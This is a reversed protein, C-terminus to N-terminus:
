KKLVKYLPSSYYELGPSLLIKEEFFKKYKKRENGKPLTQDLIKLWKKNSLMKIHGGFFLGQVILRNKQGIKINGNFITSIEKAFLSVRALQIFRNREKKFENIFKKFQVAEQVTCLILRWNEPYDGIFLWHKPVKRYKGLIDIRNDWTIALNSTVLLNDDFLGSAETGFIKGLLQDLQWIEPEPKIFTPDSDDQSELCFNKGTYKQVDLGFNPNIFPNQNYALEEAQNNKQMFNRDEVSLQENLADNAQLRNGDKIEATEQQMYQIHTTDPSSAQLTFHSELLSSVELLDSIGSLSDNILKQLEKKLNFYESESLIEKISDLIESSLKSLFVIKDLSKKSFAYEKYLDRSMSKTFIHSAKSFLEAEEVGPLQYARDLIHQQLLNEIKQLCYLLNENPQAEIENLYSFLILDEVQLKLKDVEKGLKKGIKQTVDKEVAFILRQNLALERMRRGGQLLEHIKTHESCTLIALAKADQSIDIGTIHEQDYYTFLRNKKYGTELEITSSHTGSIEFPNDLRKKQMCFLKGTKGDFFLVGELDIKFEILSLCIMKAAKKNEIGRFYCGVDILAKLNKREEQHMEKLLISFASEKEDNKNIQVVRNNQRIYLDITQGNIGKELAIETNIPVMFPNEISGSYGFFAKGMSVTNQGNCSAQRTFLDVKMLVEKCVYQFLINLTKPKGAMLIKQVAECAKPDEKDIKFLEINFIKLFKKATNTSNLSDCEEKQNHLHEYFCEKRKTEIFGKVQELTLGQVAYSILTNIMLVYPDSFESEEAPVMNALFPISVPPNNKRYIGHHENVNKELRSKLWGGSLMQRALIVLQAAERKELTEERLFIPIEGKKGKIYNLIAQKKKKDNSCLTNSCFHKNKLLKRAIGKVMKLSDEETQKSQFNEKLCLFKKGKFTLSCGCRIIDAILKAESFSLKKPFGFPMNLTKHPNLTQHIEDFTIVGRERIIRLIDKLIANGEALGDALERNEALLLCNKIYKCRLARLTENTMTVYEKHIVANILTEKIYLLYTATFRQPHDDFVITREKQDFIHASTHFMDYLATGYQATPPVHISLHYGDAKVYALLHGFILSKGGGQIIQLIVNKSYFSNDFLMKRLGEIQHKKLYLDLGYELVLRSHPDKISNYHPTNLGEGLKQLLRDFEESDEKKIVEELEKALNKIHFIHSAKRKAMLYHGITKHLKEISEKKEEGKFSTAKRYEEIDAKLFLGICDKEELFREQGGFKRALSLAQENEEDFPTRAIDIMKNRLKEAQFIVKEYNQQLAEKIELLWQGTLKGSKIKYITSDRGARYGKLYDKNLKKISAKVFPDESRYSFLGICFGKENNNKRVFYNNFLRHLDYLYDCPPSYDLKGVKPLEEPLHPPVIKEKEPISYPHVPYSRRQCTQKHFAILMENLETYILYFDLKEERLAIEFSAKIKQANKYVLTDTEESSAYVVAQLITRLRFNDEHPDYFMGDLWKQARMREEHDYSGALRYLDHFRQSLEIGPRTKIILRSQRLSIKPLTQNKKLSFTSQNPLLKKMFDESYGFRFLNVWSSIERNDFMKEIALESEIKECREFYHIILQFLLSSFNEKKGRKCWDWKDIWFAVWYSNPANKSPFSIRDEPLDIYTYGKQKYVPNRKFNNFVLWAAYWRVSDMRPSYDRKTKALTFIIGLLKLEEGSYQEFCYGKKLYNMAQIYDLPTSAHLLSLSALFINKEPLRSSLHGDSIKYHYCSIVQNNESSGLIASKPILFEKEGQDNELVLFASLNRFGNLTQDESIRLHPSERYIWDKAKDGNASSYEFQLAGGQENVYNCFELIPSYLLDGPQPAPKWLIISSCFPNQQNLKFYSYRKENTGIPFYFYGEQDFKYSPNEEGKVILYFLEHESQSSKWVQFNGDKSLSVDRLSNKWEKVYEIWGWVTEKLIKDIINNKLYIRWNDKGEKCELFEGNFLFNLKKNGIVTNYITETKISKLINIDNGNKLFMGYLIDFHYKADGEFLKFVPFCAEKWLVKEDFILGFNCLIQNFLPSRRQPHEKLYKQVTILHKYIVQRATQVFIPMLLPNLGYERHANEFSTHAVILDEIENMNFPFGTINFGTLLILWLHQQLYPDKFESLSLLKKIKKQNQRLTYFLNYTGRAECEIAKLIVQQKLELIFLLTEMSLKKEENAAVKTEFVNEARNFLEILEEALSRKYYFASTLKKFELLTFSILIRVDQYILEEMHEEIFDHLMSITIFGDREGLSSRIFLLSHLRPHTKSVIFNQETPFLYGKTNFKDNPFFNIIQCDNPFFHSAIFKWEFNFYITYTSILKEDNKSDADKVLFPGELKPYIQKEKIILPIQIFALLAVRQLSYFHDPLGKHVISWHLRWDEKCDSLNLYKSKENEYQKDSEEWFNEEKLKMHANIYAYEEEDPKVRFTKGQRSTFHKLWKFSFLPSNENKITKQFYENLKLFFNELEADLLFNIKKNDFKQYFGWYDIGYSKLSAELSFGEQSDRLYCIELSVALCSYLALARMGNDVKGVQFSSSFDEAIKVLNKLIAQCSDPNDRLGDFIKNKLPNEEICFKALEVLFRAIYYVGFAPPKAMFLAHDDIMKEFDKSNEVDNLMLTPLKLFTLNTSINKEYRKSLSAVSNIDKAIKESFNELHPEEFTLSVNTHTNLFFPKLLNELTSLYEIRQIPKDTSRSYKLNRKIEARYLSPFTESLIKLFSSDQAIFFGYQEVAMRTAEKKLLGKFLKYDERGIQFALLALLCRLSCTGSLQTRMWSNEHDFEELSKKDLLFPLLIHYIDHAGYLRDKFHAIDVGLIVPEIIQQILICDQLKELPIKFLCLTDTYLRYNQFYNNHYETGSGTNFLYLIFDERQRYVEILFTHGYPQSTWGSPIIYSEGISLQNLKTLIKRPLSLLSFQKEKENLQFSAEIEVQIELLHDLNKLFLKLKKIISPLFEEKKEELLFIIGKQMFSISHTLFNGEFRRGQRDTLKGIFADGILHSLNKLSIEWRLAKEYERGQSFYFALIKLSEVLEPKKLLDVPAKGFAPEKLYLNSGMALLFAAVSYNEESLYNYLLSQGAVVGQVKISDIKGGEKVFKEIYPWGWRRENLFLKFLQESAIETICIQTNCLIWDILPIYKAQVAENLLTNKLDDPLLAGKELLRTTLVWKKKKILISNIEIKKANAGNELLWIISYQATTLISNKLNPTYCVFIAKYLFELPTNNEENKVDISVSTKILWEAIDFQCFLLAVHLPTQMRFKKNFIGQEFNFGIQAMKKILRLDGWRIANKLIERGPDELFLSNNKKLIDIIFDSFLGEKLFHCILRRFFIPFNENFNPSLLLFNIVELSEEFTFKNLMLSFKFFLFKIIKNKLDEPLSDLPIQSLINQYFKKSIPKRTKVLPLISFIEKDCKGRKKIWKILIKSSTKKYKRLYKNFYVFNFSNGEFFLFALKIKTKRKIAFNNMVYDLPIKGIKDKENPDEGNRLFKKCAHLAGEKALSHLNINILLGKSQFAKLIKFILLNEEKRDESDNLSYRVMKEALNAYAETQYSEESLRKLWISFIEYHKRFFSGIKKTKLQNIKNIFKVIHEEQNSESNISNLFM